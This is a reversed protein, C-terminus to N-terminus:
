WAGREVSHMYNSMVADLRNKFAKNSPAEVVNAQM